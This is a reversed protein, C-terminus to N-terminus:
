LYHSATATPTATTTTDIADNPTPTNNLLRLVTLDGVLLNNFIYTLNFLFRVQFFTGPGFVCRKARSRREMTTKDNSGMGVRSRTTSATATPTARTTTADNPTPNNCRLRRTTKVCTSGLIDFSINTLCFFLSSFMSFGVQGPQGLYVDNTGKNDNWWEDNSRTWTGVVRLLPNHYCVPIRHHHHLRQTHFQQM